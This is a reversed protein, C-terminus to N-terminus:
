VIFLDDNVKETPHYRCVGTWQLMYHLDVVYSWMRYFYFRHSGEAPGNCVSDNAGQIKKIVDIQTIYTDNVSYLM